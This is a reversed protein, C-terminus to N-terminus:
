KRSKRAPGSYPVAVWHCPFFLILLCPGVAVGSEFFLLLNPFKARDLLLKTEPNLHKTKYIATKCERQIISRQVVQGNSRLWGLSLEESRTTFLICTM